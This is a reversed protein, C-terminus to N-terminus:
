FFFDDDGGDGDSIVSVSDPYVTVALSWRSRELYKSAISQIIRSERIVMMVETTETM